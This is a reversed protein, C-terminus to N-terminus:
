PVDLAPSFLYLVTIGVSSDFRTAQGFGSALSRMHTLIISPM